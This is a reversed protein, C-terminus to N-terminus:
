DNEHLKEQTKCAEILDKQFKEQRELWLHQEEALEKRIAAAAEASVKEEAAKGEFVTNYNTDGAKAVSTLALLGILLLQNLKM